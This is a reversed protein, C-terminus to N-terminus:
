DVPIWCLPKSGGANQYSGGSQQLFGARTLYNMPIQAPGESWSNGNKWATEYATVETTSLTWDKNTDAPHYDTSSHEYAGIDVTNDAIRPNGDMDLGPLEPADNTGANICLSGAGLHYDDKETNVFLPAVDINNAAFDLTGVIEHVNNNYFNKKAGYGSLYIDDGETGATNGWIINNYINLIATTNNVDVYLGGGYGTTKNQTLTNNILNITGPSVVYLCGSGSLSNNNTIVNNILDITGSSVVYLCGSESLSNNNTIVNNIGTISNSNLYITGNKTAKLNNSICNSEFEIHNHASLHIGGDNSLFHNNKFEIEPASLAVLSNANNSNENNSFQNNLVTINNSASCNIGSNIYARNMLISNNKLLVNTAIVFISDFSHSNILINSTVNNEIFSFYGINIAYLGSAHSNWCDLTNNSIISKTIFLNSASEINLGGGNCTSYNDHIYCSAIMVEGKTKILIGAGACVKGNRVTLNEININLENDGSDIFLVRDREEGDLVVNGANLGEEAQISLSTESEGTIFRFNGKYIGAALFISDSQNNEAATSLATQLEQTTTVHFEAAHAPIVLIGSIALILTIFISQQINKIQKM